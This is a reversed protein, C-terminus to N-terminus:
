NANAVAPQPNGIGHLLKEVRAIQEPTPKPRPKELAKQKWYAAEQEQRHKETYYAERPKVWDPDAPLRPYQLNCVIERLVDNINEASLWDKQEDWTCACYFAFEPATIRISNRALYKKMADVFFSPAAARIREAPNTQDMDDYTQLQNM